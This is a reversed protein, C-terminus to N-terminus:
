KNTSVSVAIAKTGTGGVQGRAIFTYFKGAYPQITTSAIVTTTGATRIQVTQATAAYAIADIPLFDAKNASFDVNTAVVNGNVVLDYKPAPTGAVLNVIRVYAKSKDVVDFKDNFVVAGYTPSIGYAFVSYFKGDEIPLDASLVAVAPSTATQVKVKATGAAITGYDVNPFSNFYTISGAAAPPTTLVGSFKQDNVFIDVGPADPAAHYFKVRAGAAPQVSTLFDYQDGCANLTLMLAVVGASAFLKSIYKKM